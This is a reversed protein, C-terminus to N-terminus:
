PFSTQGMQNHFYVASRQINQTKIKHTKIIDSLWDCDFDFGTCIIRMLHNKGRCLQLACVSHHTCAITILDYQDPIDMCARRFDSSIVEFVIDTLVTKARKSICKLGNLRLGYGAKLIEPHFRMQALTLEGLSDTFTVVLDNM